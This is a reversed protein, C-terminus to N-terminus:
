TSLTVTSEAVIFSTDAPAPELGTGKNNLPIDVGGSAEKPRMGGGEGAEAPTRRLRGGPIFGPCAPSQGPAVGKHHTSVSPPDHVAHHRKVSLSSVRKYTYFSPAQPQFGSPISLPLRHKEADLKCLGAEQGAEMLSLGAELKESNTYFTGDPARVRRGAQSGIHCRSEAVRQWFSGNRLMVRLLIALM